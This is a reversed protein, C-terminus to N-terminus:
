HWGKFCSDLLSNLYSLENVRKKAALVKKSSSHMSQQLVEVNRKAAILSQRIENGSSLQTKVTRLDDLGRSKSVIFAIQPLHEKERKDSRPSLVHIIRAHREIQEVTKSGTDGYLENFHYM